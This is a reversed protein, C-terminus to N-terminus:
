LHYCDPTTWDCPQNCICDCTDCFCDTCYNESELTLKQERLTEQVGKSISLIEAKSLNELLKKM